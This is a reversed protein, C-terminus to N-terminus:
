TGNNTSGWGREKWGNVLLYKYWSKEEFNDKTQQSRHRSQFLWWLSELLSQLIKTSLNNCLNINILKTGHFNGEVFVALSFILIKLKPSSFGSVQSEADFFFCNYSWFRIYTMSFIPALVYLQCSISSPSGSLSYLNTTNSKSNVFLSLWCIELIIKTLQFGSVEGKFPLITYAAELSCKLFYNSRFEFSKM